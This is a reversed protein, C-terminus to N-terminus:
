GKNIEVDIVVHYRRPGISKVIKKDLIRFDGLVKLDQLPKERLESERYSNHFHIICKKKAIKLAAPLFRSTNPFYGMIIRDAVNELKVKRNDALIPIINKIKNLTINEKLYKYATKNKEITYIKEAKRAIGLSFYGIGAFMDAIIENPKVQSIIRKREFLNGKSFMVKSVDMKYLIGHEKHTTVLNNGALRIIKPERFEGKIPKAECVTKIYPYLQLIASALKRKEGLAKIKMPKLLMIDGIIQYSSPIGDIGTKETLRSKFSM